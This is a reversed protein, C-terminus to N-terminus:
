KRSYKHTVLDLGEHERVWGRGRGLPMMRVVSRRCGHRGLLLGVGGAGGSDDATGATGLARLFLDSGRFGDLPALALHLRGGLPAGFLELALGGEFLLPTPHGAVVDSEGVLKGDAHEALSEVGDPEGAAVGDGDGVGELAALHRPDVRERRVVQHRLVLEDVEDVGAQHGPPRVPVDVVGIAVGGRLLPQFLIPLRDGRWRGDFLHADLVPQGHSRGVPEVNEDEEGERLLFRPILIGTPLVTPIFLNRHPRHAAFLWGAILIGHPGPAVLVPLPLLGFGVGAYQSAGALLRPEVGRRGLLGRCSSPPM